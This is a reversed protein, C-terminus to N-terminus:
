LAADDTPKQTFSHKPFHARGEAERCARGTERSLSRRCLGCAQAVVLQAEHAAELVVEPVVVDDDDRELVPCSFPAFNGVEFAGIETTKWENRSIKPRPIM